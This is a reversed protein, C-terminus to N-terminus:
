QQHEIVIPPQAAILANLRVVEGRLINNEAVVISLDAAFQTCRTSMMSRQNELEAIVAKTKEDM